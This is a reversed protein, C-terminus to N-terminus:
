NEKGAGIHIQMKKTQVSMFKRKKPGAGKYIDM